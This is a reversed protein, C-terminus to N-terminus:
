TFKFYFQKREWIYPLCLYDKYRLLINFIFIKPWVFLCIPDGSRLDSNQM